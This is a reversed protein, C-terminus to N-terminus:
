QDAKPPRMRILGTENDRGEDKTVLISAGSGDWTRGTKAIPTGAMSVVFPSNRSSTDYLQQRTLKREIDTLRATVNDFLAALGATTDTGDGSAATATSFMSHLALPNVAVSGDELALRASRELKVRAADVSAPNTLDYFVARQDIVDFPPTQGDTMMAVVPKKYGHAVALEYFVNPNHDTLDAVILDSTVIRDIVKNTISSPDDEEDARLVAWEPAPLAKRIIYELAWAAKIAVETGPTGIPSIVFVSRPANKSSMATMMGSHPAALRANM